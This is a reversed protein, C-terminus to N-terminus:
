VCSHIFINRGTIIYPIIFKYIYASGLILYKHDQKCPLTINELFIKWLLIWIKAKITLINFTAYAIFDIARTHKNDAWTKVLEKIIKYMMNLFHLRFARVNVNLSKFLIRNNKYRFYFPFNNTKWLPVLEERWM